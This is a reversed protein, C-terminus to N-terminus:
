EVDLTIKIGLEEALKLLKQKKEELECDPQNHKADYERARRLLRHFEDIEEQIPVKPLPALSGPFIAHHVVPVPVYQPQQWKDWYHDMIMSVMCM